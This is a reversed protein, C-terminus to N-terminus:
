RNPFSYELFFFFTYLLPLLVSGYDTTQKHTIQM